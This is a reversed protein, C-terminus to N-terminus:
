NVAFMVSSYYNTLLQNIEFVKSYSVLSMLDFDIPYISNASILIIVTTHTMYLSFGIRSIFTWCKHSLFNNVIGGSGNYCLFIIMSVSISWLYRNVAGFFANFEASTGSGYHKFIHVANILCILIVISTKMLISGLTKNITLKNHLVYGLIIGFLSAPCRSITSIYSILLAENKM